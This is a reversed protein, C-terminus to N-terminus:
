SREYTRHRRGWQASRMDVVRRLLALRVSSPDAGVTQGVAALSQDQGYFKEAALAAAQQQSGTLGQKRIKLGAGNLISSVTGQRTRVPRLSGSM